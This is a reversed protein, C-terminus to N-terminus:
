LHNTGGHLPSKLTTRKSNQKTKNQNVSGSAIRMQKIAKKINWM